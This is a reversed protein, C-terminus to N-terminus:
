NKGPLSSARSRCSQRNQQRPRHQFLVSAPPLPYLSYGADKLSSSLRHGLDMRLGDVFLLVEGAVPEQNEKRMPAPERLWEKQFAEAMADLWNRYLVNVVAAVAESSKRDTAQELARVVADDARWTTNAYREAQDLVTGGFMMDNTIIALHALHELARALPSEGM